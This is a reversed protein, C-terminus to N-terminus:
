GVSVKINYKEALVEKIRTCRKWFTVYSVNLAHATEEKGYGLEYVMAVIFKDTPDDLKRYLDTAVYSLIKIEEPTADPPLLSSTM